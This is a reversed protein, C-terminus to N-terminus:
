MPGELRSNFGDSVGSADSHMRWDKAHRGCHPCHGGASHVTLSNGRRWIGGCAQCKVQTTVEIENIVRKGVSLTTTGSKRLIYLCLDRGFEPVKECAQELLPSVLGDNSFVKIAGTQNVQVFVAAVLRHQVTTQPLEYLKSIINCFSEPSAPEKAEAQKLIIKGDLWNNMENCFCFETQRRLAPMDYKDAVCCLDICFLINTVPLCPGPLEIAGHYAFNLMATVATPEDDYLRVQTASTEQFGGTFAAEFWHSKSSLILKHAEFKIEGAHGYRITVDSFIASNAYKELGLKHRKNADGTSVDATRKSAEM